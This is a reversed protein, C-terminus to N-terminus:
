QFWGEVDVVANVSGVSNLLEICGDDAGATTDLQVVILNPLITGANLNVDSATPNVTLNAPYAVLYTGASPVIATLNAIVAVPGTSPVGGEGAVHILRALSLGAGIAGTSCGLSAVRTDCIRSPAIAQYQYGTTASATGYWGNADLLVNIKGVSTFVCVASDPGSPGPGLEVMVRNAEVANALLNLTSVRPSGCTGNSSTPYVSLYTPASSGVGTLNLVAAAATGGSPIPNTGIGTVTVVMPAGAALIGHAKCAPTPSTSRTDCVRVPAIPHFEGAPTSALPPIFYGEVDGLVNVSGVSNYINIAKVSGLTGLSVTVLNPTVTGPGFNLNSAKPQPTGTPYVTLLSGASGGVETVNVVVATAGAPVSQHTAPDTYSSIPVTRTANQGIAGGTCQVCSTSRTDLIRFPVLPVYNSLPIYLYSSQTSTASSSGISDTAVVHVVGGAAPGAPTTFTFSDPSLNGPTVPTGGITVTTGTAFDSGAVTVLQGGDGPGSAPTLSSVSPGAFTYRGLYTNWCTNATACNASTGGDTDESVVWVDTPHLPDQVAASYAGWTCLSCGSPSYFTASTHLAIFSSWTTGTITAVEMSEFATSSSQDFTVFVNGSSDVALAPYYLYAGTVGEPTLQTAGTVSGTSSANVSVVNLCSRVVSSLTCGTNGTAWLVNNVWAADLFRDDNTQLTASTGSQPAAPPISSGNPESEAATCTIAANKTDPTGTITFIAYTNAAPGSCNTDNAIQFAVTSLGLGMVPQVGLPGPVKAVVSNVTTHGTMLDAKQIIDTQSALFAGGTCNQYDSSEVILTSTMAVSVNALEDGTLQSAIGLSGRVTWAQTPDSQSVFVAIQSGCGSPNYQLVMLLFLGTSPDYLVRPDREHWGSTGGIMAPISFTALPTVATMGTASRSYVFLASNVAEVVDNAGAAVSPDAPTTDLASGSGAQTVAAQESGAAYAALQTPSTVTLAAASAPTASWAFSLAVVIASALTFSRRM